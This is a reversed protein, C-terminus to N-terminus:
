CVSLLNGREENTMDKGNKRECWLRLIDTGPIKAAKSYKKVTLESPRRDTNCDCGEMPQLVVRNEIKRKGIQISAKIM